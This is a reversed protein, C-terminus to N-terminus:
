RKDRWELYKEGYERARAPNPEYRKKINVMSRAAEDVTAYEGIAAFALAADGM